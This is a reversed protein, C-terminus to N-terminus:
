KICLVLVKIHWDTNLSTGHCGSITTSYHLCVFWLVKMKNEPRKTWNRMKLTKRTQISFWWKCFTLISKQLPLVFKYRLIMILSLLKWILCVYMRTYSLGNQGGLTRTYCITAHLIQLRTSFNWLKIFIQPVQHYITAGLSCFFYMVAYQPGCNIMLNCLKIM